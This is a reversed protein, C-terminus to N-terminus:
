LHRVYEIEAIRDPERVSFLVELPPRSLRFMGERDPSGISAPNQSLEVDITDAAASVAAPDHANMWINALNAEATRTWVVTFRTM